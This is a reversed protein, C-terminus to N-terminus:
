EGKMSSVAEDTTIVGSAMFGFNTLAVLYGVCGVMAGDRQVPYSWYEAPFSSGDTRWMVEDEVHVGFGYHFAQYIQCEEVPYPEGNARTHHVLTHVHKGLLDDENEFGLLRLCAPNLFTCNGAMDTGYIGDGSSDLLLRFMDDDTSIDGGGFWAATLSRDEIAM